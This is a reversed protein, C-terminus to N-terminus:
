RCDKNPPEVRFTQEPSWQRWVGKVMPRVKWRWGDLNQTPILAKGRDTYSTSTIDSKDIVPNEAFEHIVYLHYRQAGPAESWRFEWVIPEQLSYCGNDLEDGEKPSILEVLHPQAQSPSGTPEAGSLTGEPPKDGKWAAEPQVKGVDIKTKDALSFSAPTGDAKLLLSTKDNELLAVALSRTPIQWERLFATDVIISFRGTSDTEASPNVVKGENDMKYSLTTSHKMAQVGGPLTVLSQGGTLKFVYVKRGALPSKGKGLLVGTVVYKPTLKNDGSAEPGSGTKQQALLTSSGTLLGVLIWVAIRRYM